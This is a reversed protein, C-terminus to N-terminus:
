PPKSPELLPWTDFERGHIPLFLRLSNKPLPLTYTKPSLFIKSFDPPHSEEPGSEPPTKPRLGSMITDTSPWLDPSQNQGLFVKKYKFHM